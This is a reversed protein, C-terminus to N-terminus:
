EVEVEERRHRAVPGRSENSPTLGGRLPEGEDRSYWRCASCPMLLGIVEAALGGAALRGHGISSVM